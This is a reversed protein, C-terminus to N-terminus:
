EDLVKPVTFKIKSELPLRIRTLDWTIEDAYYEQNSQKYNLVVTEEQTAKRFLWKVHNTTDKFTLMIKALGASQITDRLFAISVRRDSGDLTLVNLTIFQDINEIPVQVIDKPKLDIFEPPTDWEIGAGCFWGYQQQQYFYLRGATDIIFNSPLYYTQIPPPPPPSNLSTKISPKEKIPVIFTENYNKAQQSCSALSVM